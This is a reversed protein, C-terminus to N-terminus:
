RAPTFRATPTPASAPATPSSRKRLEGTIIDGDALLQGRRQDRRRRAARTATATPSPTREYGERAAPPRFSGEYGDGSDYEIAGEGHPLGDSTEGTYVGDALRITAGGSETGSVADSPSAPAKGPLLMSLYVVVTAVVVATM